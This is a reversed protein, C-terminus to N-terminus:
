TPVQLRIWLGMLDLFAELVTRWSTKSNNHNHVVRGPIDLMRAGMEAAYYIMETEGVAGNIRCRPLIQRLLDSRYIKIYHTDRCTKPIRFLITVIRHYNNSMFWRWKDYGTVVSRPHRKSVSVVDANRCRNLAYSLFSFDCIDAPCLMVYTGRSIKAGSRFAAAIGRRKEHRLMKISPGFRRISKELTGDKSGDDVVIIEHTIELSRLELMLLRLTEPLRESEDKAPIVVSLWLAMRAAQKNAPVSSERPEKLPFSLQYTEQVMNEFAM